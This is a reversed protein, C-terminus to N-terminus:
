MRQCIFGTFNFSLQLYHTRNLMTMLLSRKYRADVHSQYYLLLGKNTIKRYVCTKLQEGIKTLEIGIYPLKSINAAEIMFSIAPHAEDLTALFATATSIDKVTALADDVYRKCFSPLKDESALKEEISCIFTNAM